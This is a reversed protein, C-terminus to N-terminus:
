CHQSGSVTSVVAAMYLSYFKWDYSDMDWQMIKNNDIHWDWEPKLIKFPYQSM